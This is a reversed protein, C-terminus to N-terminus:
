YLYLYCVKFRIEKGKDKGIGLFGSKKQKLELKIILDKQQPPKIEDYSLTEDTVWVGM